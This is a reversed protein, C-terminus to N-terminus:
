IKRREGAYPDTRPIWKLFREVTHNWFRWEHGMGESEEWTVEAGMGILDDRFQVNPAYLPDATGCSLFMKPFPKGEALIRKAAAEPDDPAPEAGPMRIGASFGGIAAFREPFNLGNYLAGYGGM